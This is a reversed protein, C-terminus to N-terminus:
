RIAGDHGAVETRALDSFQDRAAFSTELGYAPYEVEFGRDALFGALRASSEHEEFATEPHEYM